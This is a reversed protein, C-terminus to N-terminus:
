DRHKSIIRFTEEYINERPGIAIIELEKKESCLRYILRYRKFRYSKLGDLELKLKKGCYPDRLIAQLASKVHAKIEPHLGLILTAVEDPVRLQFVTLRPM